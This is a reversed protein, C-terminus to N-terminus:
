DLVSRLVEIMPRYPQDSINVLGYAYNEGDPIRGTPPQDVWTFWIAGVCRPNARMRTLVARFAEARANQNPFDVNLGLTQTSGNQDVAAFSFESIMYPKSLQNLTVLPLRDATGYFNVSVVDCFDAAAKLVDDPTESWFEKQGLFLGKFGAQRLGAALSGFYRRAFLYRYYRLDDIVKPNSLNAESLVVPETPWSGTGSLKWAERWRDASGYRARLQRWLETRSASSYRSELMALPIRYQERLFGERKGWYTEGDVFAGMFLEPRRSWRTIEGAWRRVFWGQFDPHFVDPFTGADRHPLNGLRNPFDYTTFTVQYPIGAREAFELDSGSGLVNVGWASLRSQTQKEWATQWNVLHKRRLNSAYFNVGSGIPFDNVVLGKLDLSGLRATPTYFTRNPSAGAGHNVSAVGFVFRENGDPFRIRGGSGIVWSGISFSGRSKVPRSPWVPDAARLDEERLVKGPWSRASVQGFADVLAGSSAVSGSIGELRGVRLKAPATGRYYIQWSTVRDLPVTRELHAHRYAGAMRPLPRRMDGQPVSDVFVRTREGAKLSFFATSHASPTQIRFGLEMDAAELNSLEIQFGSFRSWDVAQSFQQGFNSFKERFSVTDGRLSAGLHLDTRASPEWLQSQAVAFSTAFVLSLGLVWRM